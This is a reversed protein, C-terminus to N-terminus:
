RTYDIRIDGNKYYVYVVYRFEINIFVGILMFEILWLLFVIYMQLEEATFVHFGSKIGNEYWHKFKNNDSYYLTTTTRPLIIIIYPEINYM